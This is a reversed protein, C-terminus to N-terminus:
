SYKAYHLLGNPTVIGDLDQLPTRSSTWFAPNGSKQVNRVVLKESPSPLGYLQSGVPDGQTKMWEPINPPLNSDDAQASRGAFAEVAAGGALAGGTRLFTRRSAFSGNQDARGNRNSM